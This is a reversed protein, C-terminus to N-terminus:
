GLARAIDRRTAGLKLLSRVLLDVSVSSDAAEMRAVRSQSSGLAEALEGQTLQKRTRWRRLAQSLGIHGLLRAEVNGIIWTFRTGPWAHQLSRLVALLHCTDGIASL